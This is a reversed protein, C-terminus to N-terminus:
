RFVLDTYVTQAGRDLHIRFTEGPRLARFFAGVEGATRAPSRNFGVIVDGARLGTQQATQPAIRVILAGFDRRLNRESQIAPTVTVLELDELVRVREATVTPLDGAVLTRRAGDGGGRGALTLRVADGVHLDLKVAEWDLYNRLRRGNAEVLIDGTRLGVRDAPSGPAVGTVEVGGRSKWTRMAEASAVDLGTWARRVSGNQLLQDAVRLVREIPIAFGLGVSGGSSSFISSNMGVVEGLANALPGGSNGPNIAADTQIMDLYLGPQEGTPLINRGLASVVGATVTPENNGLLYAYPNGLAVVWEGIMLGTSRGFPVTPLNRADVRVVAVDTVPDEGVLTAEAETGDRLTVIIREAGGIVHQNTVIVGDARIVFGTGYGQVTRETNQPVFFLDWPTRVPVRQRSTVSLSVVAPAIRSAASVIATRRSSDLSTAPIPMPIGELGQPATAGATARSSEPVQARCSVTLGAILLALAAVIHAPLSGRHRLLAM